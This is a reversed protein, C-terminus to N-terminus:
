AFKQVLQLWITAVAHNDVDDKGCMCEAGLYNDSVEGAEHACVISLQASYPDYQLSLHCVPQDPTNCFYGDEIIDTACLTAPIALVELEVQEFYSRTKQKCEASAQKCANVIENIFKTTM